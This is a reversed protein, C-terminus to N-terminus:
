QVQLLLDGPIMPDCLQPRFVGSPLDQIERLSPCLRHSYPILLCLGRRPSGVSRTGAATAGPSRRRHGHWSVATRAVSWLESGPATGFMAKVSDCHTVDSSPESGNGRHVAPSGLCPSGM